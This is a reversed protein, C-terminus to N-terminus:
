LHFAQSTSLVYYLGLQQDLLIRLLSFRHLCGRGEEAPAEHGDESEREDRGRGHGDLRHGVRLHVLHRDGRGARRNRVEVLHVRDLRDVAHHVFGAHERAVDDRGIGRRRRVLVGHRRVRDVAKRRWLLGRHRLVHLRVGEVVEPLAHRM